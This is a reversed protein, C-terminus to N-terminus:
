DGFQAKSERDAEMMYQKAAKVDESLEQFKDTLRSLAPALKNRIADTFAQGGQGLLAGEELMNAIHQMEQMTDQLQEVGQQFTAIMEDALEYDLKIVDYSM